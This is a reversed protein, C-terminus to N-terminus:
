GMLFVVLSRAGHAGLVLSQEIDATKSPGALFTGFGYDASGIKEYAAAMSPVISDRHVILGLHQTIFPLVRIGMREETLWVAGNEAVALHSECVVFTVDRYDHPVDDNGFTKFGTIGAMVSVVQENAGYNQNIYQNIEEFNAIEVIKAGIQIVTEVFKAVVFNQDQDEFELDPPMLNGKSQNALISGLIKDRSM